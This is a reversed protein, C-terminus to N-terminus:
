SGWSNSATSKACGYGPGHPASSAPMAPQKSSRTCPPRLTPSSSSWTTSSSSAIVWKTSRLQSPHSTFQRNSASRRDSIPSCSLRTASTFWHCSSSRCTSSRSSSGASGPKAQALLDLSHPSDTGEPSALVYSSSSTTGDWSPTMTVCA